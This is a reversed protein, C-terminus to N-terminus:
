DAPWGSPLRRFMEPVQEDKITINRTLKQLPQARGPALDMDSNGKKSHVPDVVRPHQKCEKIGKREESSQFPNYGKQLSIIIFMYKRYM